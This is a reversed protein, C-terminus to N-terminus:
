KERNTNLCCLLVGDGVEISVRDGLSVNSIGVFQHDIRGQKLEWKLGVTTVSRVPGQIPLLSLTQGPTTQIQMSGQVAFLVETSTELFLRNPYRSLLFLHTISHDIRGGWGAYITMRPPSRKDEHRLAVELDTEDKDRHLSIKEIDAYRNLFTPPTSDFDGVWLDPTIGLQDCGVIGGDVAIVRKNKLILPKLDNLSEFSGNAILATM